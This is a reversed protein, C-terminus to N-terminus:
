WEVVKNAVVCGLESGGFTSTHSRGIEEVWKGAQKTMITAAVPYIGGSLGKGSVIVDPNVGEHMIGWMKGTRMLGTQVEDAIYLTGYKECLAKVAKLYGPEPIPSDM